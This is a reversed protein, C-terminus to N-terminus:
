IALKFYEKRKILCDKNFWPKKVKKNTYSKKKPTFVMESNSAADLLIENCNEVLSDIVVQDVNHCGNSLIEAMKHELDLVSLLDIANFFVEKKDSSWKCKKVSPEENDIVAIKLPKSLFEVVVGNHVDSCLPDFPLIEFNSVYSFLEPSMICYDVVTANKCTTAGIGKDKFLRGNAIHVDFTKCLSLLRTGYNDIKSRDSSHRTTTIGLDELLSKNLIQRTVDDLNFTDCIHENIYIFDNANSTHANFDGILCIKHDNEPNLTILDNEISDFISISSYSSNEPPIYVTGFLVLEHFLSNNVTFWLVNDSSGQLVKVHEFIADKILVAIGGSRSKANKRNLLQLIKFNQVDFSDLHGLKSEVSCVIDYAQCKEEFDPYRLKSLLGCVNICLLKISLSEDPTSYTHENLIAADFTVDNVHFDCEFPEEHLLPEVTDITHLNNVIPQSDLGRNVSTSSSHDLSSLELEFKEPTQEIHPSRLERIDRIQIFDTVEPRNTTSSNTTSSNTTTSFSNTTPINLFDAGNSSHVDNLDSNYSLKNEIHSSDGYLDKEM